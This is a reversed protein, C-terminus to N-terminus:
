PPALRVADCPHCMRLHQTLYARRSFVRGCVPCRTRGKHVEKHFRLSDPHRFVAGCLACVHAGAAAQPAGDEAVGAALMESGGQDSIGSFLGSM